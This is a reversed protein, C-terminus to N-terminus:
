FLRAEPPRPRLDLHAVALSANPVTEVEMGGRRALAIMAENDSRMQGILTSKGRARCYDVLKRLLAEGLGRRQMDSRVLLAFEASEGDPYVLIRGEGLIEPAGGDRAAAAVFAMERDYDIQTYRALDPPSLRRTRSFFRFQLDPAATRAIFEAYARADEPRIPRLLVCLDRLEVRQELERPYPRVALHEGPKLKTPAVRARVELAMAGQEDVLLPDIELEVIEPRRALLQSVRSLITALEPSGPTGRRLMDLALAANLPVIGVAGDLRILMGFIPDIAARLSLERAGHRRHVAGRPRIMRQVIFGALRAPPRHAQVRRAIDRAAGRLEDANELNLLVGGVDARHELDPSLVKLAVPYGIEAALQAAEDASAAVHTPVIPVGYAALLAKGEPDTLRERGAELAEALVKQVTQEDAAFDSAISEPAEQLAEQNRWYRLMDLYAQVGAEPTEYVPLGAERLMSAGRRASGEGMWSALVRGSDRAEAKCAEAVAEDAVVGSPGHILLVIHEPSEALASRLAEAHRQPVADAGLDIPACALEGGGAAVADAAIVGPGGANTLVVLKSRAGARMRGLTEAAEFLAAVTNVRLMGARAIAADFADDDGPHAGTHRMAAEAGAATRGAKMVVVPKSRAAARAASLFKRGNRVSELYLLIARTAADGGLFDLIDAADVDAADGLSVAHTFGIKRPAAWDLAAALLAGSQSLFALPGRTAPTPAFSANLGVGPVLLGMSNPGLIRMLYPKAVALVAEHDVGDTLIAAARTGQVGLSRVLGPVSDPPTCIVALDPTQPLFGVERYAHVGGVSSRTSHVPLIPGAFGGNLLNRMVATGVSYERESAGIVALSRPRLLFDLNRITM